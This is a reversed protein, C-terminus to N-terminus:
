RTLYITRRRNVVAGHGDGEADCDDEVDPLNEVESGRGRQCDMSDDTCVSSPSNPSSPPTREDSLESDGFDELSPTPPRKRKDGRNKKRGKDDKKGAMLTKPRHSSSLLFPSTLATSSNM